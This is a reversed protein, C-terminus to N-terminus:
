LFDRGFNEQDLGYRLKGSQSQVFILLVDSRLCVCFFLSDFVDVLTFIERGWLFYDINPTCCSNTFWM